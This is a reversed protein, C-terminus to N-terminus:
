LSRGLIEVPRRKGKVVPVQIGLYFDMLWEVLNRSSAWVNVKGRRMKRNPNLGLSRLCDMFKEAFDHSKVELGISGENDHYGDGDNVGLLYSLHSTNDFDIEIANEEALQRLKNAVEESNRYEERDRSLGEKMAKLKIAEWSRDLESKVQEKDGPYNERLFDLEEDDWFGSHDSDVGHESMKKSVWGQTVDHREAIERQSLEEKNYLRNLEKRSLQSM